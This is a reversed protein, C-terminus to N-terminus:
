DRIVGHKGLPVKSARQLNLDKDIVYLKGENVAKLILKQLEDDNAKPNRLAIDRGISDNYIDMKERKPDNFAKMEHAASYRASWDAGFTRTLRANWLAHRYADVHGDNQWDADSGKYSKPKKFATIADQETAATIQVYRYQERITLENLVSIEVRPMRTKKLRELKANMTNKGHAATLFDAIGGATQLVAEPIGGVFKPHWYEPIDDNPVDISEIGMSANPVKVDARGNLLEKKYGGAIKEGKANIKDGEIRQQSHFTIDDLGETVIFTGELEAVPIKIQAGPQVDYGDRRIEKADVKAITQLKKAIARIDEGNVLAKAAAGFQQAKPLELYIEDRFIDGRSLDPGEKIGTEYDNRIKLYLVPDKMVKPASIEPLPREGSMTWLDVGAPIKFKIGHYVTTKAPESRHDYKLTFKDGFKDLPKLNKRSKANISTGNVLEYTVSGPKTESPMEVRRKVKGQAFLGAEFGLDFFDRTKSNPMPAQIKGKGEVGVGLKSGYTNEYASIHKKLFYMEEPSVITNGPAGGPTLPNNLAKLPTAAIPSRAQQIQNILDSQNSSDSAMHAIHLKGLLDAARAADEKNTFRMEVVDFNEISAKGKLKEESRNTKLREVEALADLGSQQDYRVTYTSNEDNSDRKIKIVTGLQGGPGIKLATKGRKVMAKGVFSIRHLATDGASDLKDIQKRIAITTELGFDGAYKKLDIKHKGFTRQMEQTQEHIMRLDIFAPM